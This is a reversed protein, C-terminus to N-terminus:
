SWEDTLAPQSNREDSDASLPLCPDNPCRRCEEVGEIDPAKRKSQMPLIDDDVRSRLSSTYLAPITLDPSLSERQTGMDPRDNGKVFMYCIYCM